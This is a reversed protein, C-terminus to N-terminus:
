SSESNKITNDSPESWPLDITFTTGVGMQSKVAIAGELIELCKKVVALGLGTGSFTQANQGRYFSEFLHQQDESPIGIGQDQIQFRTQRHEGQIILRIESEPPSYKIANTLLSMLIARLLKEDFYAYNYNSQNHISIEQQARINYKTEAVLAQCFDWLNLKQPTLELKGAEARTLLLIDALLQTMLKAASQIRGLNRSRKEDSQYVIADDLLQACILITSLPTRFEHSALSFFNLKLDIMEKEQAIASQRSEALQRRQQEVELVQNVQALATEQQVLIEQQGQVQLEFQEKSKLIRRLWVYLVILLLGSSSLTIGLLWITNNVSLVDDIFDWGVNAEQDILFTQMTSEMQLWIRELDQELAARDESDFQGQEYQQISQESREFLQEFLQIFKKLSQHENVVAEDGVYLDLWEELLKGAILMDREYDEKAVANNTDFYDERNEQATEVADVMDELLTLQDEANLIEARRFIAEYAIGALALFATAIAGFGLALCTQHRSAKM